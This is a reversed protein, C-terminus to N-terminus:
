IEAPSSSSFNDQRWISFLEPVHVIGGDFNSRKPQKINSYQDISSSQRTGSVRDSRSAGDSQAVVAVWCIASM